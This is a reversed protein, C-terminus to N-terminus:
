SVRSKEKAAQIETDAAKKAWKAKAAMRRQASITEAKHRTLWALFPTLRTQYEKLDKFGQQKFEKFVLDFEDLATKPSPKKCQLGSGKTFHRKAPASTQIVNKLFARFLNYRDARTRKKPMVLRLAEDFSCPWSEPIGAFGRIGIKRIKFNHLLFHQLLQQDCAKWLQFARQALESDDQSLSKCSLLAAIQTLEFTTPVPTKYSSVKKALATRPNSTKM